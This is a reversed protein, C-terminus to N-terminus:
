AQEALKQKVHDALTGVTEFLELTLEEDDILIDFEAEIETVLVMAELSDLGLGLGLIPTDMQIMEPNSVSGQLQKHIIERIRTETQALLDTNM